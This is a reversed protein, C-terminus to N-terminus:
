ESVVDGSYLPVWFADVPVPVPAHTLRVRDGQVLVCRVPGRSDFDNSLSPVHARVNMDRPVTITDGVRGPNDRGAYWYGILGGSELTCRGRANAPQVTRVVPTTESNLVPEVEAVPEQWDDAIGEEDPTAVLAANAPVDNGIDTVAQVDPADVADAVAVIDMAAPTVQPAANAPTGDFAGVQIAVVAVSLVALVPVGVALTGLALKPWVSPPPGILAAARRLNDDDPARQAAVHALRALRGAEQADALLRTWAATASTSTPPPEVVAAARALESRQQPTPFRKAYFSALHSREAPTLDM